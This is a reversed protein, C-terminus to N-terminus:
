SLPLLALSVSVCSLYHSSTKVWEWTRTTPLVTYPSAAAHLVGTQNYKREASSTNSGSLLTGSVLV